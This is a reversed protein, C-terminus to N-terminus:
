FTLINITYVKNNVPLQVAIAHWIELPAKDLLDKEIEMAKSYLSISLVAYTCFFLYKYISKGAPAM